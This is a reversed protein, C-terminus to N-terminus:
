WPVSQLTFGNLSWPRGFLLTQKVEDIECHILLYGNLINSIQVFGFVIELTEDFLIQCSLRLLNVLCSAM